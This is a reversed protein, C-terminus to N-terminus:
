IYRHAKRRPKHGRRKIIRLLAIFICALNCLKGIFIFDDNSLFGLGSDLHCYVVGAVATLHLGAVFRLAFTAYISNVDM